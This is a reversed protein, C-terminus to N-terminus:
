AGYLQQMFISSVNKVAHILRTTKNTIDVKKPFGAGKIAASAPISIMIATLSPRPSTGRLYSFYKRPEITTIVVM